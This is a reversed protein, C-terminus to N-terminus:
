KLGLGKHKEAIIDALADLAAFDEEQPAGVSLVPDVIEVKLNSILGAVTEVAKGGWGYSGIVSAFAARPRLANALFAAYVVNPHPATLVTPTGVVITAADVLAIALKGIDTYALNFREVMVGRDVLAACLHHTMAETSGHMSIFPIVVKNDLPGELWQHYADIIFKPDDYVPGHSPAILALDRSITGRLVCYFLDCLDM